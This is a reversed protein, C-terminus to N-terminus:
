EEWGKKRATDRMGPTIPLNLENAAKKFNEWATRDDILGAFRGRQSARRALETRVALDKVDAATRPKPTTDQNFLTGSGKEIKGNKVKWFATGDGLTIGVSCPEWSNEGQEFTVVAVQKRILGTKFTIYAYNVPRQILGKRERQLEVQPKIRDPKFGATDLVEPRM